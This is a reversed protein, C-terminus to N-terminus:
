CSCRMNGYCECCSKELSKRDLIEVRGRRYQIAGRRQLTSAALSVGERRVGLLLAIVEHTILMSHSLTRDHYLLLWRCLQQEISHYRNCMAIQATQSMFEVGYRLLVDLMSTHRNFEEMLSKALIRYAFGDNLVIARNITSGGGLYHSIGVMGDMGVSAVESSGGEFTECRLSVVTDIPFYAHRIQCGPECLCTSSKLKVFELNPFVRAQSEKSLRKLLTNEQPSRCTKHLFVNKTNMSYIPNAM